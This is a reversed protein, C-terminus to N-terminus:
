ATRIAVNRADVVMPALNPTQTTDSKLGRLAPTRVAAAYCPAAQRMQLLTPELQDAYCRNAKCTRPLASAPQAAYFHGAAADRDDLFKTQREIEELRRKNDAERRQQELEAQRAEEARREAELRQQERIAAGTTTAQIEPVAPTTQRHAIANGTGAIIPSARLYIATGKQKTWWAPEGALAKNPAVLLWGVLVLCCIFVYKSMLTVEQEIAEVVNRM